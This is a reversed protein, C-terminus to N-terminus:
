FVYKKTVGNDIMSWRINPVPSGSATCTLSFRDGKRVTLQNLSPSIHVNPPVQIILQTRATNRGINNDATCIYEGSDSQEVRTLRLIRPDSSKEVNKTIPAGGARSWKIVPSPIGTARCQMVVSNGVNVTQVGEPHIQVVPM